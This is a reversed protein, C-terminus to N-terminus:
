SRSGTLSFLAGNPDRLLALSAPSSNDATGNVVVGGSAKAKGISAELSGTRICPLWASNSGPAAGGGLILAVKDGSPGRVANAGGSDRPLEEWGFLRNYFRGPFPAEASLYIEHGFQKEPVPFGHRSMSIGLPAGLPDRLLCNRGVGPVDFPPRVIAGGLKGALEATADVDAVEVYAIWGDRLGKPTETIGAGAEDEFLALVFDKEGGGWAFDKAHETVYNWGAVRGYFSMSLPGNPSFLDHWVVRGTRDTNM